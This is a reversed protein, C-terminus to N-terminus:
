ESSHKKQDDLLLFLSVDKNRMLKSVAKRGFMTLSCARCTYHVVPNPFRKQAPAAHFNFNNSPACTM